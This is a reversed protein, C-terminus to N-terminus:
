WPFVSSVSLRFFSTTLLVGAFNRGGNFLEGRLCPPCPRQPVSRMPPVSGGGVLHHQRTGSARRKWSDETDETGETDGHYISKDHDVVKVPTSDSWDTETATTRTRRTETTFSQLPFKAPTGDVGLKEGHRDESGETGGHHILGIPGQNPLAGPERYNSTGRHGWACVWPQGPRM